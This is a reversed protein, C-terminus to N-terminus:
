LPGLHSIAYYDSALIFIILLIYLMLFVRCYIPSRIWAVIIFFLALAADLVFLWFFFIIGALGYSFVFPLSFVTACWFPFYDKEPSQKEPETAM